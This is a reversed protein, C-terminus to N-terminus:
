EVEPRPGANAVPKPQVVQLAEPCMYALFNPPEGSAAIYQLGFRPGPAADLVTAARARLRRRRDASGM